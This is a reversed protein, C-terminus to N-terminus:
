KNSFEKVLAVTETATIGAVLAEVEAELTQEFGLYIARNFTKKFRRVAADPLTIIQEAVELATQMMLSEPVVRWALGMEQLQRADYKEVLLMMERAKSVGVIISLLSM